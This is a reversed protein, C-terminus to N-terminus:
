PSCFFYHRSNLHNSKSFKPLRAYRTHRARLRPAAYDNRDARCATDHASIQLTRALDAVPETLAFQLWYTSCGYSGVVISLPVSASGTACAARLEFGYTCEIRIDLDM